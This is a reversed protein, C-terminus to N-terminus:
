LLSTIVLHDALIELVLKLIRLNNGEIAVQTQDAVTVLELENCRPTQGILELTM